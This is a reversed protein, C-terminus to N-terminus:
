AYQGGGASQFCSSRQAAGRTIRNAIRQNGTLKARETDSCGGELPEGRTLRGGGGGAKGGRGEPTDVAYEKKEFSHFRITFNIKGEAQVFHENPRPGHTDPRSHM